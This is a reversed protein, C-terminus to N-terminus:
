AAFRGDPSDRFQRQYLDAYRGGAALLATHTGREIIEGSEIVLILDADRITSLRHAIVISTRGRLLRALAAQIREETRTDISSTAEDLILIRPDALVARAFSLLQRQGQSLTSGQESLRTDYGQPLAEIFAHADVAEAAARIEAPSADPRGYAINDAVTGGFLFPEQLVIAMQRRLSARTLDRVDHGDIRVEGRSVDYFRPALNAITTKGAGTHGVLAVTQGAAVDFAIDRLVPRTPEYNFWVGDFTVRGDARDLVLAALPDPAEEPEDLISFIRDAGALAAQMQTYVQSVLQIPRFFQQVYILFAALVGLSLRNDLLLYGGFGIVVATALTSLVDITPAFASTVVVASINADRNARNRERFRAINTQTRNFAQAERIGTIEEQLEATVDGTTERTMRFARRALRSFVSTALFILPIVSFSVLALPVNLLLMAIVIGVLGFLSGLLQTLGQSLLQNLTDVDNTVRSMLDGLPRRDFFALPLRGFHEFLQGRLSALLRQGVSGVQFIQARTAVAGVAYVALLGVLTRALGALDGNLIDNDIARSVLWPAAAQAVAGVIIWVLAVLLEGKYAATEGLLRWATAAGRQNPAEITSGDVM